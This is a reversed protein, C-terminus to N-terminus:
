VNVKFVNFTKSFIRWIFYARLKTELLLNENLNNKYEADEQNENIDFLVKLGVLHADIIIRDIGLYSLNFEVFNVYSM